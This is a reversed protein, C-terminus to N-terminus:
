GIQRLYRAFRQWNAVYNEASRRIATVAADDLVRVVRAPAGVIMSNDPFEKGETVLANAGVLCNNGIKAGNLITAGMGILTNDGITCGHLIANHGITCGNGITLPFGMDTHVMVGEQINTGEGVTIPENDGRLVAGFWIGVNEGLEIQGIINADPAIWYLGASPLKPTSGGLAYVPM